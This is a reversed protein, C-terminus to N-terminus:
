TNTESRIEEILQLVLNLIYALAVVILVQHFIPDNLWPFYDSLTGVSVAMIPFLLDSVSLFVEIGSGAIIFVAAGVGVVFRGVQRARERVM